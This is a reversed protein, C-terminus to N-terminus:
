TVAGGRLFRIAPSLGHVVVGSRRGESAPADARTEACLCVVFPDNGEAAVIAMM